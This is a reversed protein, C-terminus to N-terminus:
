NSQSNANAATSKQGIRSEKGALLNRINAQHRYILLASMAVVMTLYASHQMLWWAYFPASLAAVLASLSSYRTVLAVVIWTALLALGFWGNLALSVGLATAVGKGGQFGFFVPYLHGVFAALATAALVTADDTLARAILVPIVGKLTDGVLTLIAAKKGGYRLINTAGPNKSGVERPDRLGMIRAIVIASSISGILYAGVPLLYYLM